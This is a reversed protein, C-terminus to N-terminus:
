RGTFRPWAALLVVLCVRGRDDRAEGLGVDTFGPELLTLRHAPSELMRVLAGGASRQRAITEGVRRASIGRAHLRQEPDAGPELEHAIKGQACVHAAHEMAVETLLTHVRLSHAGVDGRAVTLQQEPSLDSPLDHTLERPAGIVREAVPRPGAPGKAILQVRLPRPWEPDLEVGHALEKPTTDINQLAGDGDVVVLKPSSFGKTIGGRVRAIARQEIPALTGARPTVLLLQARESQANGCALPADTRERVDAIFSAARADSPGRTFLARVMVADSGARRVAQALAADSPAQDALLLEAAAESLASEEACPAAQTEARAQAAILGLCFLGVVGICPRSV